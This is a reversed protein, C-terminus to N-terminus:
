TIVCIKKRLCLCTTMLLWRVSIDLTLPKFWGGPVPVTYMPCWPRIPGYHVVSLAYLFDCPPPYKWSTQSLKYKNSLVCFFVLITAVLCSKQAWSTGLISKRGPRQGSVCQPLKCREGLGRAPNLPRKAALFPPFRSRLLPPLQPLPLPFFTSPCLSPSVLFPSSLSPFPFSPASASTTTRPPISAGQLPYLAEAGRYSQRHRKVFINIIIIHYSIFLTHQIVRLCM